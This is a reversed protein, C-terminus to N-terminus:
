GRSGQLEDHHLRRRVGQAARRHLAPGDGRRVRAPAERWPPHRRGGAAQRGAPLGPTDVLVVLPIAFANCTRVFRAGKQASEADRVGGLHKPQNAVIGVLRGEIRAFATVLNRAWTPSVELLSDRDVLRRAVECIDYPRRPDLPVVWGPDAREPELADGLPPPSWANQPLHSLLRGVLDIADGDSRGAFHCVGNRAHVRRGGLEQTSTV